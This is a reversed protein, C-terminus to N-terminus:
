AAQPGADLRALADPRIPDYKKLDRAARRGIVSEYAESPLGGAYAQPRMAYLMEATIATGAAIDRGAMM